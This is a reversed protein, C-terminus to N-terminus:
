KLKGFLSLVLALTFLLGDCAGVLAFPAWPGVNDFLRGGVQTFFLIGIQGFFHLVGNMAGRVDGPMGRMFLVEISVNELVTALILFSCSVYATVTDPRELTVFAFAAGCRIFFAIPIIIRSPTKDALHGIVPLMVGTLIMSIMTVRRYIKLAENENALYGTEVFSSIWLLMYVSFLVSILRIIMASVFCLPYKVDSSIVNWVRNTIESM